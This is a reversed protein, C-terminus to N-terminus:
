LQGKLWIEKVIVILVGAGFFPIGYSYCVKEFSDPAKGLQWSFINGTRAAERIIAFLVLIFGIIPIIFYFIKPGSKGSVKNIRGNIYFAKVKKGDPDFYTEITVNDKKEVFAYVYDRPVAFSSKKSLLPEYEGKNYFDGGGKNTAEQLKNGVGILYFHLYIDSVFVQLILVIIIVPLHLRYRIRKKDRMFKLAGIPNVYLYKIFLSIV